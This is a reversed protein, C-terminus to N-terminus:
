KVAPVWVNLRCEPCNPFTFGIISPLTELLEGCNKCAWQDEAKEQRHILEVDEEPLTSLGPRDEKSKYISFLGEAELYVRKVEGLQYIEKARLKSFLQYHSVRAESMADLNIKGNKVLMKARGQTLKEIIQNYFGWLSISRHFIFACLIVIMGQIIGRDPTLMPVGIIAGFSLMVVMETLTLQGNMRKGLWRVLLYFAVYMFLSRLFIELLFEWPANGVFIRQLDSLRIDEKNM